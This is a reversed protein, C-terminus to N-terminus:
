VTSQGKVAQQDVGGAGAATRKVVAEGLGGAVPM